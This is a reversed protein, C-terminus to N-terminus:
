ENIAGCFGARLSLDSHLICILPEMVCTPQMVSSNNSLQALLYYDLSRDLVPGALRLPCILTYFEQLYWSHRDPLGVTRPVLM